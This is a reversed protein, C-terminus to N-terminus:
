GGTDTAAEALAPHGAIDDVSAVGLNGAVPAWTALHGFAEGIAAAPAPSLYRVQYLSPNDWRGKGQGPSVYLPHGPEKDPVSAVRPFVRYLLM